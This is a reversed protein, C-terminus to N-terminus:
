SANPGEKAFHIFYKRILKQFEHDAKTTKGLSYDLTGFFGLTDLMHFSFWSEYSFLNNLRVPRSPTYIVQYRYVPSSLAAAAQKALENSPCSVRVDSVMTMYTKEVCREPQICFESVPYLNLAEDALSGGFTKLRSKVFWHYDEETWKSINEFVPALETEQLTTGIVFPVDSYGEKKKKKWVDLPPFPVVYGDVVPMPGIFIGKQPLDFLDEAAWAPYEKWPISQLIKTITLQRLCKADKCGTKKLFVLNDKEAETM